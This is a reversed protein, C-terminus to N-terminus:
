SPETRNVLRDEVQFEYQQKGSKEIQQCTKVIKDSCIDKTDLVLLDQSTESFPKGFKELVMVLM